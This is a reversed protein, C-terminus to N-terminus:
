GTATPLSLGTYVQNLVTPLLAQATTRGDPSVTLNTWIVLTVDHDPDHGIFSNFGPLEGGHYYMAANPAFRQYAIGYGYKQGDPAAPDEAQPSRLWQQQYAPGLVKGTVLARIWVALDDATSVAGGAATAYSPNQHTYDVPQLKGSRAAAEVDAPYAKDVLAYASGGYMYGHSFPAPLSVDRAGPLSTGALGLPAFLRDRLQQALPRGGAKEAVLGLM